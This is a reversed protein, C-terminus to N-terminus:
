YDPEFGASPAIGLQEGTELYHELPDRGQEEAEKTLAYFAPDFLGSERIAHLEPDVPAPPPPPPPAPESLVRRGVRRAMRVIYEASSRPPEPPPLPKLPENRVLRGLVEGLYGRDEMVRPSDTNGLRRVAGAVSTLDRATTKALYRSLEDWSAARDAYARWHDREKSLTNTEARAALLDQHVERVADALTDAREEAVDRLRAAETTALRDVLADGLRAFYRRVADLGGAQSSDLLAELPPPPPESGVYAVGLGNSHVFEVSPWAVEVEAWLKWVGFDGLRVNTDHFLVVGRRSMKPLWSRYDERVAEYTHLGDIHLLDVSGDPLHGRADEFSMRLLNSFRGYLPDHYEKLNYYVDDGYLGAHADGMWHDVGFSRTELGLTAVAQAFACYSNGTHVGLEVLTKPRM